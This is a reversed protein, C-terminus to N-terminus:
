LGRRKLGATFVPACSASLSSRNKTMCALLKREDPYADSCLREADNGCAAREETTIHFQDVTGRAAASSPAGVALIPFLFAAALKQM